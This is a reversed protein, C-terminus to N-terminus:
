IKKQESRNYSMTFFIISLVAAVFIIIITPLITDNFFEQSWFITRATVIIGITTSLSIATAEEEPFMEVARLLFVNTLAHGTVIILMSISIMHINNENNLSFIFMAICGVIFIIFGLTSTYQLGKKDIIKISLFSFVIYIWSSASQYYTFKDRSLGLHDIFIISANSFYLVWIACPISYIIVFSMFQTNKLLKWYISCINKLDFKKRKNVPLTEKVCILSIILAAIITFSIFLFVAHWNFIKSIWLAILPMLGIFVTASGEVLGSLKGAENMSSKDFIILWGVILLTSGTLGEIFRWFLLYKFESSFYCGLSGIVYLLLGIILIKRRGFVDSLPGSIISSFFLGILNFRIIYDTEAEQINFFKILQPFSQIYLDNESELFITMISLLMIYLIYQSRGQLSYNKIEM